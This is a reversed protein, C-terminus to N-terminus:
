ARSRQTGSASRRRAARSRSRKGRAAGSGSTPKASDPKVGQRNAELSKRLLATLDVVKATPREEAEQTAETLEHTEGARIKQEIRKMLDDRYSDRFAQPEFSQKMQEVLQMAMALEQKSVQAAKGKTSVAFEEPSLVEDAYRLTDLMLTRGIPALACVYQRTRIVVTGIAVLKARTLVDLFLAYVKEGRKEPSLYYPTDYYQPTIEAPDVFGVIDITRTAEVNALRFDEDTLAVYEGPEYQYGKVIDDWEVEKGTAKNYRQYGVPSFDRKDLLDLDLTQSRSASHLAVPIHILSFSIAGQWIVRAM